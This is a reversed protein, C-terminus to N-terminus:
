SSTKKDLKKQSELFRMMLNDRYPLGKDVTVIQGNLADLYGSSVAFVAKGCEEPTVLVDEGLGEKELFEFFSKGFIESFSDTKVMGFRIINVRSGENGLHMALYKGFFELLAKSAAVFDYGTYFHDPGDSSIGVVSGPYSGFVEKITKTYDILPWTSYDLTKYLTRKKYESLSLIRASFGVNSVLIDIRPEKERIGTLLKKTDEELSADAEILEPKILGESAFRAYLKGTDASGWKYTLYTKAGARAFELASALGIGKTGGTVLVTKGKFDIGIM